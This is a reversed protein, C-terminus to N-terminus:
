RRLEYCSGRDFPSRQFAEDINVTAESSGLFLYGDPELVERIRALIRQKTPIDFYILVNRIFVIDFSTGVKWPQVLNQEAFQVRSRISEHIQWQMGNKVFYKVLLPAPLGRNVELQSYVGQRARDLVATCIDTAMISFDWGQLHGFHESLMMAISYPEQGTSSAACWIKIRKRAARREILAPLVQHRLVEFPKGDRFFSTENTTMADIVRRRLVLNTNKKLAEVLELISALGLERAVPTLRTEVLYEKGDELVIAAEQKLMQAIYHFDSTQM